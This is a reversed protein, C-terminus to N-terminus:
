PVPGPAPPPTPPSSNSAVPAPAATTQLPSLVYGDPTYTMLCGSLIMVCVKFREPASEATDLMIELDDTDSLILRTLSKAQRFDPDEALLCLPEPKFNHLAKRVELVDLPGDFMIDPGRRVGFRRVLDYEVGWVCVTHLPSAVRLKLTSIGRTARLGEACLVRFTPIPNAAAAEEVEDRTGPPLTYCEAWFEAGFNPAGVRPELTVTLPTETPLLLPATTHFPGLMIPIHLRSGLKHVPRGHFQGLFAFADDMNNCQLKDIVRDGLQLSVSAILDNLWASRFEPVSIVLLLSSILDAGDATLTYASGHKDVNM